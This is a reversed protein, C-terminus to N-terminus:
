KYRGEDCDHRKVQATARILGGSGGGRLIGIVTGIIPLIQGSRRPRIGGTGNL